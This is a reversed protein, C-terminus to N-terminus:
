RAPGVRERLQKLRPYVLPLFPHDLVADPIPNHALLPKAEEARGSEILAWALLVEPGDASGPPTMQVLATFHKVAEGPKGESMLGYGRALEAAAGAGPQGGSKLILRLAAGAGSDAPVNDVYSAARARDGAAIAWVALHAAALPGPAPELLALAEKTRGTVFEWQARMPVARPDRLKERNEFFRAAHAGAGKLDGMMLRAWAAKYLAAGALFSPNRKYSQLFYREAQAFRGLYYCVEGMSDLPNADNPRLKRYIQLRGMAGEFDGAYARVYGSLNYLEPDPDRAMAADYLRSASEFQRAATDMGALTRFAASDAPVARTLAVLARRSEAREGSLSAAFAHLRAREVGAIGDGRQRAAAIIKGAAARDGRSLAQSAWSVYAPGFDADLAAAREFEGAAYARLADDTTHIARADPAIQRALSVALAAIGSGEASATAVTRHTVFNELAVYARGRTIYGQMVHTARLATAERLRAAPSAYARPTGTLSLAILEAIGRGAWDLAPDATLNELPIVAIREFAPGRDRSCGGPFCAAAALALLARRNWRM